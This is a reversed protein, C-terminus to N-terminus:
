VFLMKSVSLNLVIGRNEGVHRLKSSGDKMIEKEKRGNCSPRQSFMAFPSFIRIKIHCCADREDEVNRADGCETIPHPLRGKGKNIDEVM